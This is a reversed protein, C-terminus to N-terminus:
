KLVSNTILQNFKKTKTKNKLACNTVLCDSVYIQSIKSSFFGGNTENDFGSTQLFVDSLHCLTSNTYNSVVITKIGREKCNEALKIMEETEGSFSYIIICTNKDLVATYMYSFHSDNVVVSNVGVRLLKSFMDLATTHSIGMGAILVQKAELIYKTALELQERNILSKTKDLVDKMNKTINDIFPTDTQIRLDEFANYVGMKFLIFNSYGLKKFYRVVTAEGIHLKDSLSRVSEYVIQEPHEIVYQHIIRETKSLLVHNRNILDDLNKQNVKM